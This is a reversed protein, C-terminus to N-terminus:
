EQTYNLSYVENTRDFYEASLTQLPDESTDKSSLFYFTLGNALLLMVLAAKWIFPFSWQREEKRSDMRAKLRTYFFPSPEAKKVGDFSNITRTIEEEYNTQDDKMTHRMIVDYM